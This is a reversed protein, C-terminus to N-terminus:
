EEFAFVRSWDNQMSIVTWGRERAEDLAADLRGVHSERDYAYEREADDHHLLVMLSPGDGAATWQLMQLDGDSNGFAAIPRRGIFHHIGVPKGAKDDVFSIEPQKVLVPGEDWVQFATQGMSGMVQEPPIGYREDAFVRIFDRGGGSVIFTKFGNARLYDLLELMPQYTVHHFPQDFRPHRATQLWDAVHVAFEDTTMGAHTAMVIQVVDHLSLRMLADRDDDLIAQFPQRGRWEPREDAMARVRDLAFLLQFYLPKEGWLTGDNDFVAIRESEPVFDPSAPDTVRDVFDTISQRTPGDNWSPLPDGPAACASAVLLAPVAVAIAGTIDRLTPM